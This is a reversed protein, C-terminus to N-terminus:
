PLSPSMKPRLGKNMTPITIKMIPEAVAPNAVLMNSSAAKLANCPSPAPPKNESARVITASM